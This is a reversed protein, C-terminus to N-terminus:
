VGDKEKLPQMFSTSKTIIIAFLCRHKGSQYSFNSCDAAIRVIYERNARVVFGLYPITYGDITNAESNDADIAVAKIKLQCVFCAGYDIFVPELSFNVYLRGHLKTVAKVPM